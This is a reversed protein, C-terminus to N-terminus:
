SQYVIHWPGWPGQLPGKALSAPPMRAAIGPRIPFCRVPGPATSSAYRCAPAHLSLSDAGFGAVCAATTTEIAATFVRGRFVVVPPDPKALSVSLREGHDRHAVAQAGPHGHDRRRHQAGVGNLVSAVIFVAHWSGTAKTLVNAFPVLLAATPTSCATILQPKNAATFTPAPRRSCRIFRAGPSSCWVQCCCSGCRTPQWCSCRM